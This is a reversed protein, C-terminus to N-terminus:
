KVAQGAYWIHVLFNSTLLTKTPQQWACFFLLIKITKCELPQIFLPCTQSNCVCVYIKFHTSCHKFLLIQPMETKLVFSLLEQSFLIHSLVYALSTCEWQIVSTEIPHSSESLNLPLEIPKQLAYFIDPFIKESLTKFCHWRITWKLISSNPTGGKCFVTHMQRPERVKKFLSMRHKQDPPCHVSGIM